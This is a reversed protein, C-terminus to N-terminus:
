CAYTAGAARPKRSGGKYKLNEIKKCKQPLWNRDLGQCEQPISTLLPAGRRKRAQANSCVVQLCEQHVLHTLVTATLVCFFFIVPWPVCIYSFRFWSILYKYLVWMYVYSNVYAGQFVCRYVYMNQRPQSWTLMCIYSAVEGKAVPSRANIQLSSSIGKWRCRWANRCMCEMQSVEQSPVPTSDRM